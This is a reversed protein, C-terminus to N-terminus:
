QRRRRGHRRGAHPDDRWPRPIRRSEQRQRRRHGEPQRIGRDLGLGAAVAPVERSPPSIEEELQDPTKGAAMVKGILPLMIVGSSDVQEADFSLDKVEFVRITLKDQPGIVYPGNSANTLQEPALRQVSPAGDSSAALVAAPAIIAMSVVAALALWAGRKTALNFSRRGM